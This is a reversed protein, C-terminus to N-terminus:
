NPLITIIIIMKPIFFLLSLFTLLSAEDLTLLDVWSSYSYLDDVRQYSAPKRDQRSGWVFSKARSAKQEEWCVRLLFELLMICTFSPCIQKFYPVPAWLNSM